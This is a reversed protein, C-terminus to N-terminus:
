SVEMAAASEDPAPQPVPLFFRLTAGGDRNNEAQIRGGHAEIISRSISLGLGVGDKRTTVFSEFLRPLIEKPIGHGTDSVQVEVTEGGDIGTRVILRRRSDPERAMADMGNLLLNVVVQEL